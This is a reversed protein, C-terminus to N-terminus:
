NFTSVYKQFLKFIFYIVPVATYSIVTAWAAGVGGFLPIFFINLSINIAAIALPFVFLMLKKNNIIMNQFLVSSIFVGFLSFSYISLIQVSPAFAEGYLVKIIIPALIYTIVSAILAVAGILIYFYKTRKSYENTKNSNVLAPFLSAILISPIINWVDVVRVAASYFGVVETNLYSALMVQDIRSYIETFVSFLAVPISLALIKKIWIFSATLQLSRKKLFVIQYIYLLSYIVNELTLIFIFLPLSGIYVIVCVKLVSITLSTIINTIAIYKSEADKLFDLHLLTFPQFFFNLCLILILYIYDFKNFIITYSIVLITAIVGTILKLTIASGFVVLRSEKSNVLEKYVITDIGLNAIVAFIGVISLVYNLTGFLSPGLLRAILITTFLSFLLTFFKSISLWQVNRAYLIFGEKKFHEGFFRVYVKYLAHSIYTLM